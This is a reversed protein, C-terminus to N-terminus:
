GEPHPADSCGPFSIRYVHLFAQLASRSGQAEHHEFVSHLGLVVLQDRPFTKAVEMAQPLGRAGCGPCLMQFVEVLVGRGKLDALSIPTDTNLWDQIQLM